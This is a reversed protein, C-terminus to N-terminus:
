FTELHVWVLPDCCFFCKLVREPSGGKCHIPDLILHLDLTFLLSVGCVCPHVAEDQTYKNIGMVSANRLTAFV